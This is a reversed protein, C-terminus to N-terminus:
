PGLDNLYLVKHLVILCVVNSNHPKTGAKNQEAHIYNGEMVCGGCFDQRFTHVDWEKIAWGSEHIRPPAQSAVGVTPMSSTIYIIYLIDGIIGPPIVGGRMRSSSGGVERMIDCLCSFKRSRERGQCTTALFIIHLAGVM